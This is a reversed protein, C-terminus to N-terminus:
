GAPWDSPGRSSPRLQHRPARADGARPPPAPRSRRSEPRLGLEARVRACAPDYPTTVCSPSGAPAATASAGLDRASAIMPPYARSPRAPQLLAAASPVGLHEAIDHGYPSIANTLIVDSARRRRSRRRRPLTWTPVFHRCTPGCGRRKSAKRAGDATRRPPCRSRRTSASTRAAPRTSSTPTSPEAVITVEHGDAVFSAALGAAPAVDGRTGPALVLVNMLAGKRVTNAFAYRTPPIGGCSSLRAQRTPEPALLGGSARDPLRPGGWLSARMDERDRSSTAWRAPRARMSSDSASSSRMTPSSLTM